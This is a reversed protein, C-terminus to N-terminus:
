MSEEVSLGPFHINFLQMIRGTVAFVAKSGDSSPETEVLPRSNENAPDMQKAFGSFVPIFLDIIDQGYNNFLIGINTRTHNVRNDVKNILIKMGITTNSTENIEQLNSALSELARLCDAAPEVVTLVYGTSKAAHMFTMGIPTTGPATDIIIVDYKSSFYDVNRAFFRHAREHYALEAILSADVNALTIDSPLLDLHGNQYIPLIAEKLRTSPSRLDKEKLFYGIHLDYAHLSGHGLILNTASRQPDADILLVRFGLLGLAAAINVSVTTKGVGGKTMRTVIVPPMKSTVCETESKNALKYRLSRLDSPTFTRFRQGPQLERKSLRALMDRYRREESLGAILLATQARFEINRM